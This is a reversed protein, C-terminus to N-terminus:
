VDCTVQMLMGSSSPLVLSDLSQTGVRFFFSLFVDFFVSLVAFCLSSDRSDLLPPAPPCVKLDRELQPLMQQCEREYQARVEDIIGAFNGRLFVRARARARRPRTVKATQDRHKTYESCLEQAVANM